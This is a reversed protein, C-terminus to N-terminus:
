NRLPKNNQLMYQMRAQSKEEGCLSLFAEAELELVEDETIQRSAGSVGGCLVEALKGSIKADHESAYGSANLVMVMSKLTAIGSEGPLKHTRPAPPHYGAEALGIARQKAEHLQRARDFSIGDSLRFYGKHQGAVASTAVDAMAINKFVQTVLHLPDVEAGEPISELARWLLNMTGGGGPILGVGVEVLGSYTEAAAQVTDSGLCVELGGGLTMGYPAAVVPVQAYKMRQNAKQFERCLNRIDDWKKQAAAMVVLFLNAGVCFHEGTNSIVIARFDSEAKDVVQHMLKIVDVDISNSKTKFRLGLVGDGLDWAEGGSNKLVPGDGRLMVDWTRERPDKAMPVYDGKLLDYVRDGDYFGSAGAARMDHIAKPLEIGDALMRDTAEAFGLADWTEFPGIEWNYGWKMGNDIAIVDDCIEGVRRASYALSRSIAKWAFEGVKGETAVLKKVRARVDGVKGLDKCAKKIDGDGGRARYEGTSPDLTDISRDKNRRYFGSKTKNGLLKKDVMSRVFSPLKFVERDEDETLVDYCNDVVHVLTDLGVMDATRLTASKPHGMPVGTIADLDEPSLELEQMLHISAMMAHTGIRNAVFNPADKAVVIGKGLVERGFEAAREVVAADTDPSAVIELLKMYRPPNFFHTVMFHKRFRESRGEIMDVIRLGSTNSALITDGDLLQDLKEFLSRKIDLREIIAEVIIDCDKVRELDDDFNGVEILAARSPHFFPAPKAKLMAKLAGAAFGDRASKSEREKDSLKPPVIDLLLVPLGANAVHAAIGSGMVGAGLVAVRRIPNTM